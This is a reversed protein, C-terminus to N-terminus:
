AGAPDEKAKRFEGMQSCRNAAWHFPYALLYSGFGLCLMLKFSQNEDAFLHNAALYFHIILSILCCAIGLTM